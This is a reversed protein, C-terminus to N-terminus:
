HGNRGSDRGRLAPSRGELGMLHLFRFRFAPHDSPSKQISLVEEPNSKMEDLRNCFYGILSRLSRQGDLELHGILGIGESFLRDIRIAMTRVWQIMEPGPAFANHKEVDIGLEKRDTVPLFYELTQIERGVHDLLWTLWIAQGCSLALQEYDGHAVGFVRSAALLTGGGMRCGLQLWDDFSECRELRLTYDAAGVIDHLYQQPISYRRMTDLLAPFQDTSEEEMFNNRMDERLDDLMQMRAKRGIHLNCITASRLSLALIAYLFQQDERPVNSIAWRFAGASQRIRERCLAYSQELTVPPLIRKPKETTAM